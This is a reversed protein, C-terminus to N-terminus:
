ILRRYKELLSSCSEERGFKYKVLKQKIKIKFENNPVIKPFHVDEDIYKRGYKLVSVRNISDILSEKPSKSFQILCSKSKEKHAILPLRHKRADVREDATKHIQVLINDATKETAFKVCKQNNTSLPMLLRKFDINQKRKTVTPSNLKKTYISNLQQKAEVWPGVCWNKSPSIDNENNEKKRTPSEISAESRNEKPLSEECSEENKNDM